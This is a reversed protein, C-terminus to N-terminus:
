NRKPVEKCPISHSAETKNGSEYHHCNYPQMKKMRKDEQDRNRSAWAMKKFFIETTRCFLLKNIVQTLGRITLYGQEMMSPPQLIKLLHNGLNWVAHQCEAPLYLFIFVPDPPFNTHALGLLPMYRKGQCEM